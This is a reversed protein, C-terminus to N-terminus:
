IEQKSTPDNEKLEIFEKEDEVIDYIPLPVNEDTNQVKDSQGLYVKGLWMAM